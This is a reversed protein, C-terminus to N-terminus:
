GQRRARRESPALGTVSKFVTSFTSASTFGVALAIAELKHDTDDLLQEAKRVRAATLEDLFTTEDDRLRRQLTRTSMALAVAANELSADRCHADLWARLRALLASGYAMTDALEGLTTALADDGGLELWSLAERLTDVVNWGYDPQLFAAFGAVTAGVVGDPRVISQRRIRERVTDIRRRTGDLLADFTEGSAHSLRSFDVVVDCRPELTRPQPRDFISLFRAVDDATPRGWAVLGVLSPSVAFILWRESRWFAGVPDDLFEGLEAVARLGM